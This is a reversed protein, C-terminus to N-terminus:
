AAHSHSRQHVQFPGIKNAYLPVPDHLKYRHSALLRRGAQTAADTALSAGGRHGRTLAQHDTHGSASVAACLGALCLALLPALMARSRHDM